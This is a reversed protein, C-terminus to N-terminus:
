NSKKDAGEKDKLMEDIITKLDDFTRFGNITRGNVILTPTSNVRLERAEAMDADVREKTEQGDFCKEFAQAKLGSKKAEEIVKERLNAPTLTEQQKFLASQVKWAAEPKQTEACAIAIAAPYAWPHISTLPFHKYIWRVKKGYAKELDAEIAEHARKCFPCQVDSFEVLIVPADEPGGRGLSGKVQIKAMTAADPDIKLDRPEGLFFYKGDASVHVQPPGDEGKEKPALMGPMSSEGLEFLKSMVYWRGDESVLLQHKQEQGRFRSTLPGNLLGKIPSPTLEGLVFEVGPPTNFSKQLHKYLAPRDINDAASAQAALLAALAALVPIRTM